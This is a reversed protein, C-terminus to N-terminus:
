NQFTVVTSRNAHLDKKMWGAECESAMQLTMVIKMEPFQKEIMEKITEWEWFKQLM